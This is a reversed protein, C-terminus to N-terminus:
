KKESYGVSFPGTTVNVNVLHGSHEEKLFCLDMKRDM